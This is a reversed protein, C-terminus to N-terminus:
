SLLLADAKYDLSGLQILCVALFCCIPPLDKASRAIFCAIKIEQFGKTRMDLLQNIVGDVLDFVFRVKCKVRQTFPICLEFLIARHHMCMSVHHWVSRRCLEVAVFRSVQLLM